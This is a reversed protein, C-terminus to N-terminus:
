WAKRSWTITSRKPATSAAWARQSQRRWVAARRLRLPALQGVRQRGPTARHGPQRQDSRADLHVLRSRLDLRQGDRDGPRPRHLPVGAAGTRLGGGDGGARRAARERDADAPLLQRQRVGRGGPPRRRGRGSAGRSRADEVQQRSRTASIRWICRAWARRSARHRPRGDEEGPHAKLQGIFADYIADHVFLRKVGLCMQGCNFFRGVDAMKAAADVDADECVIM